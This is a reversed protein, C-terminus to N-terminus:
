AQEDVEEEPERERTTTKVSRYIGQQQKRM